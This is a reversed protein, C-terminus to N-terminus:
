LYFYNIKKKLTLFYIFLVYGINYKFYSIGSLISTFISNKFFPLLLFFFCFLAQQGYSIHIRFVTGTLFISLVIFTKYSNLQFKKCLLIPIIIALAINVLSWLLKSNDWSLWTFPILLIFFGQAYLGNQDYMIRDSPGYDRHGDLTYRYHNIGESVLKAPSYHFDFSFIQALYFARAVSIIILFSLFIFLLFQFKNNTLERLILKM